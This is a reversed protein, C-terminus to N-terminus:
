VIAILCLLKMVNVQRADDMLTPPQYRSDNNMLNDCQQQQQQQM